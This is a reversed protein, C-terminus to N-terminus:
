SNENIMPADKETDYKECVTSVNRLEISRKIGDSLNEITRGPYHLSVSKPIQNRPSNMKRAARKTAPNTRQSQHPPHLVKSGNTHAECRWDFGPFFDIANQARLGACGGPGFSVMVVVM